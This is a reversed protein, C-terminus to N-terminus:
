NSTWVLRPADSSGVAFLSFAKGRALNVQPASALKQAGNYVALQVRAPNVERQGFSDQAVPEIVKVSGDSTKLSLEEDTLNYLIVLAKLRNRFQDNEILQISSGDALATYYRDAALTVTRTAGGVRLVHQGAPVFGFESAEWADVEELSEIGVQAVVESTGSANFVRIFASGAPAAPGYLAKDDARSAPVLFFMALVMLIFALALAFDTMRRKQTM